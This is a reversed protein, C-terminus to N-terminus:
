REWFDRGGEWAYGGCVKETFHIVVATSVSAHDLVGSTLKVGPAM